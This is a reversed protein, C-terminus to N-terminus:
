QAHVGANRMCEAHEALANAVSVFLLATHGASVVLTKGVLTKSLGEGTSQSMASVSSESSLWACPRPNAGGVQSSLIPTM